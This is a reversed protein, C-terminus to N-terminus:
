QFSGRFKPESSDMSLFLMMQKRHRLEDIKVVLAVILVYVDGGGPGFVM